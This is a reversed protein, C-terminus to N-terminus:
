SNIAWPDFEDQTSLRPRDTQALRRWEAIREPPIPAEILKQIRDEELKEVKRGVNAVEEVTPIPVDPPISRILDMLERNSQLLFHASMPDIQISDVPPPIRSESILAEIAVQNALSQTALIGACPPPTPHAEPPHPLDSSAEVGM